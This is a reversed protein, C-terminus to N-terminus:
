AASNIEITAIGRFNARCDDLPRAACLVFLLSLALRGVSTTTNFQQTTNDIEDRPGTAPVAPM